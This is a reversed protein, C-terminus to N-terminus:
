PRGRALLARRLTEKSLIEPTEVERGRPVDEARIPHRNTFSVNNRRAVSEAFARQKDSLKVLRARQREMRALMDAFAESEEDSLDVVDVLERLLTLDSARAAADREYESFANGSM